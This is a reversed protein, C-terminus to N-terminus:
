EIPEAMVALFSVNKKTSSEVMSEVSEEEGIELDVREDHMIWYALILTPQELHLRKYQMMTGFTTPTNFEYSVFGV